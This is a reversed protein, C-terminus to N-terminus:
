DVIYENTFGTDELIIGDVLKNENVWNYFMNWRDADFVGFQAADNIYQESLYLQSEFVLKRNLEPVAECLIDAAEKPNEIAFEYGKKVANLFAIAIDPSNTLFDNNAIIVPSYYDFTPDTEWLPVFNIVMGKQLCKVGDWGSFGWVCEIDTHLATVIDDVYSSILEVRGFDGGDKEMVSRIITQEMLTDITAFTHNELKRPSDIEQDATSILGSLNHQLIAAVATVMLPNEGVFGEALNDQSDIGFEVDGTSVMDTATYDPSLVIEVELGNEEFYGKEQAVYIGTHITNPTWDLMMTVQTLKDESGKQEKKKGCSCLNVTMCFILIGAIWRKEM